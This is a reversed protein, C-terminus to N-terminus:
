SLGAARFGIVDNIGINDISLGDVLEDLSYVTGRRHNVLIAPARCLTRVKWPMTQSPQLKGEMYQYLNLDLCLNEPAPQSSSKTDVDAPWLRMIWSAGAMIGM